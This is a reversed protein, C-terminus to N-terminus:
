AAITVTVTTGHADTEIHVQHSMQRILWLGRGTLANPDHPREGAHNPDVMGPGRDSVQCYVCGNLHWLWMRGVGGGHRVVNTALENAILVLDNLPGEALGFQQGHRIVAHRLQALSALNVAYGPAGYPRVIGSSRSSVHIPAGGDSRARRPQDWASDGAASDNVPPGPTHDGRRTM